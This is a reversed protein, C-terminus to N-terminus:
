FTSYTKIIKGKHKELIALVIKVDPDFDPNFKSTWEGNQISKEREKYYRYIGEWNITKRNYKKLFLQEMEKTSNINITKNIDRDDSGHLLVLFLYNDRYIYRKGKINVINSLCEFEPNDLYKERQELRIKLIEERQM